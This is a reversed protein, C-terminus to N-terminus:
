FHRARGGGDGTDAHGEFVLVIEVGRRAGAVLRQDVVAHDSVRDQKLAGVADLRAPAHHLWEDIGPVVGACGAKRGVRCAIVAGGFSVLQKRALAPAPTRQFSTPTGLAECCRLIITAGSSCAIASLAASRSIARIACACPSAAM